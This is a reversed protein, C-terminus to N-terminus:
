AKGPNDTKVVFDLNTRHRLIARMGINRAANIGSRATYGSATKIWTAGPNYVEENATVTEPIENSRHVQNGWPDLRSTNRPNVRTTM